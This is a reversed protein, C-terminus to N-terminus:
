WSNKPQKGSKEAQNRVPSKRRLVVCGVGLISILAAMSPEPIPTFLAIDNGNGAQYTIFLNTGGFNGVLSGESLGAFSGTLSGGIDGILYSHNAALSHGDILSVFLEGALSLDGTVMLQDFAGIGLGALEIFTDTSSGLFVDGDLLVSAPSNGPRLDGFAFLNGGGTFGGSGSFVGFVVATSTLNGVKAIQMTGNQTVDENFTVQSGGSLNIAGTSTNNVDGFVDSTGFSFGLGGNNTLGQDFHLIAERSSILGTAAVNNLAQTFQVEGGVLSIVGANTNNTGQFQIRNGTTLQVSGSVRNDLSNSIFGSGRVVGSNILTGGSTAVQNDDLRVTGNNTWGGTARVTALGGISILGATDNTLVSSTSLEGETVQLANSNSLNLASVSGGNILLPNGISLTGNAATIRKGFGLQHSAGVVQNVDDAIATAGSFAFTGSNFNIPKNGAITGVNITGGNLDVQGATAGIDLSNATLSSGTEVRLRGTGNGGVTVTGSFTASSPGALVMTGDGDAKIGLRLSIGTISGGSSINLAGSGSDGVDMNEAAVTMRSNLGSVNITGSTGSNRGAIFGVSQNLAGGNAINLVGTGSSGIHTQSSNWIVGNGINVIGSSGFVELSANITGNRTVTLSTPTAGGVGVGFATPVPNMGFTFGNLNITVDGNNVTTSRITPSSGFSVTYTNPLGFVANQGTTPPGAPNWNSATLYPGGAANTWSINQGFGTETLANLSVFGILVTKSLQRLRHDDLASKIMRFLRVFQRNFCTSFQTPLLM